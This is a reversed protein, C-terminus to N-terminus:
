LFIDHAPYQEPAKGFERLVEWENHYRVHKSQNIELLKVEFIWNDGYDFLFYMKDNPKEWVDRIKTRKVSKAGPTSEVENLDTFLEYFKESRYTNCNSYFGFCHDFNFEFSYVIAEALAYLSLTNVIKIVRKVVAKSNQLVIEFTYNSIQKNNSLKPGKKIERAFEVEHLELEDNDIEQWINSTEGFIDQDDPFVIYGHKYITERVQDIFYMRNLLKQASKYVCPKLDNIYIKNESEERHKDALTNLELVLNLVRQEYEQIPAILKRYKPNPLLAWIMWETLYYASRRVNGNADELAKILINNLQDYQSFGQVYAFTELSKLVASKNLPNKIGSYRDAQEQIFYEIQKKNRKNITDYKGLEKLAEKIDAKAGTQISVSIDKLDM